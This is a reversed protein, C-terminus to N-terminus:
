RADQILCCNFSDFLYVVVLLSFYLVSSIEATTLRRCSAPNDVRISFLEIIMGTLEPM